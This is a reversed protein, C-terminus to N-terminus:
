ANNENKEINKELGAVQKGNVMVNYIGPTDMELHMTPFKGIAHFLADRFSNFEKSITDGEVYTYPLGTPFLPKM